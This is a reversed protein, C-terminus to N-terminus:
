YGNKKFRINGIILKIVPFIITSKFYHDTLVRRKAIKINKILQKFLYIFMIMGFFLPLYILLNILSDSNQIILNQKYFIEAIALFLVVISFLKIIGQQVSNIKLKERDGWGILMFGVACLLTILSLFWTIFTTKHTIDLQYALTHFVRAAIGTDKVLTLQFGFFYSLISFIIIVSGTILVPLKMLKLFEKLKM